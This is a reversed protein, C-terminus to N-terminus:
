NKTMRCVRRTTTGGGFAGVIQVTQSIQMVDMRVLPHANQKQAIARARAPHRTRGAISRPGGDGQARARAAGFLAAGDRPAGARCARYIFAAAVRGSGRGYGTRHRLQRQKRLRRRCSRDIFDWSRWAESTAAGDAPADGRGRARADDAGCGSFLFLMLMPRGRSAVNVRWKFYDLSQSDDPPPFSADIHWGDDWPKGVPFRVVMAGLAQPPIWGGVGVLQDLAESLLPSSAATRFPPYAYMGLRMVPQTWQEQRDPSLKLDRWLIDRCASAIERSFAGELKVFGVTFFQEILKASLTM